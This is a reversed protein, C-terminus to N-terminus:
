TCIRWVECARGKKSKVTQTTRVVRGLKELPKMHPSVSDRDVGLQEAIQFTALDRTKLASLIKGRISAPDISAAALRSTNPDTKRVFVGEFDLPLQDPSRM